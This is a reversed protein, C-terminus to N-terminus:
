RRHGHAKPARRVCLWSGAGYHLSRAPAPHCGRFRSRRPRPAPRPLGSLVPRQRDTRPGYNRGAARAIPRQCNRHTRIGQTQNPQAVGAPEMHQHRSPQCLLPPGVRSQATAPECFPEMEIKDATNVCNDHCHRSLRPSRPPAPLAVCNGRGVRACQMGGM